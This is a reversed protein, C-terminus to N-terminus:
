IQLEMLVEIIKALCLFGGLAEIHGNSLFYLLPILIVSMLISFWGCVNLVFAQHGMSNLLPTHARVAAAFFISWFAFVSWSKM